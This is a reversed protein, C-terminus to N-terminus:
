SARGFILSEYVRVPTAHQTVMRSNRHQMTGRCYGLKAARMMVPGLARPERPKELGREWVDEACFVPKSAALQYVAELARDRWDPNAHDDANAMGEDRRARGEDPDFLGRQTM